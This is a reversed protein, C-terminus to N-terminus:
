SEVFQAAYAADDYLSAGFDNRGFERLIYQGDVSAIFRAFDAANERGAGAGAPVLLAHYINVLRRDGRFLLTLGPLKRREAVWTSSDTMFYAAEAEARALSAGMFDGTVRYWGGSPAVGASQWLAMEKQHTGSQDGRSVWNSQSEAVRKFADVVDSAHSIAAPDAAPGVIVFENSGVLTPDTAWGAMLAAREQAPAHVMAMDVQRTRLLNLSDGTAAKIWDLRCNRAHCYAEGWRGLLGLEGPTATAVRFVQSGAGYSETAQRGWAIAQVGPLSSLDLMSGRTRNVRIMERTFM